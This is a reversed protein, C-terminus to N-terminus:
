LVEVVGGRVEDSRLVIIAGAKYSPSEKVLEFRYEGENEAVGAYKVKMAEGKVVIVSVKGVAKTAWREMLIGGAEDFDIERGENEFVEDQVAMVAEKLKGM